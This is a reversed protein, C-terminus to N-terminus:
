NMPLQVYFSNVGDKGVAWIKGKYRSVITQAISLGLGYSHNMSRNPDRRYFRQFINVCEEPTLTEGRSEVCILCKKRGQRWVRLMVATGVESYKCGNDLLIEIVQAFRDGDGSIYVDEEINSQLERGEEYYLPEFMLVQEEALRSLNVNSEREVPASDGVRALELLEDVLGRMQQSMTLISKSSRKRDEESYGEGDLMEANTLIVTLPTKLEHSADAVFQRQQEMVQKIPRIAWWSVLISILFFGIMALLAILVSKRLLRCLSALESTVDTFAYTGEPEIQLFRLRQSWLIGYKEGTSEALDVLEKLKEESSLDYYRAGKAFVGGELDVGVVFCPIVAQPTKGTKDKIFDSKPATRKGGDPKGHDPPLKEPRESEDEMDDYLGYQEGANELAALSDKKMGQYTFGIFMCIIALMVLFLLAMTLFVMRWRLKKIM